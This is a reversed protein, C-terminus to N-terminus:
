GSCRCTACHRPPKTMVLNADEELGCRPCVQGPVQDFGRDVFTREMEHYCNPCPRFTRMPELEAPTAVIPALRGPVRQLAIGM